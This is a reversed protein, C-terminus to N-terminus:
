GSENSEAHSRLLDILAANFAAVQGTTGKRVVRRLAKGVAQDDDIHKAVYAVVDRIDHTDTRVRPPKRREAGRKM